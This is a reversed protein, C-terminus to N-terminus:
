YRWFEFSEKLRELFAEVQTIFVHALGALSEPVVGAVVISLKRAEIVIFRVHRTDASIHVSVRWWSTREVRPLDVRAWWWRMPMPRIFVDDFAIPFPITYLLFLLFELKFFARDGLRM